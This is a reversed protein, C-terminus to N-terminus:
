IGRLKSRPSENQESTLLSTPNMKMWSELSDWIQKTLESGYDAAVFNM